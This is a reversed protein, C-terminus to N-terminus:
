SLSTLIYNQLVHPLLGQVCRFVKTTIEPKRKHKEFVQMLLKTIPQNLTEEPEKDEKHSQNEIM